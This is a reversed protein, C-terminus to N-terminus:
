NDLSDDKWSRDDITYDNPNPYKDKIAEDFYFEGSNHITATNGWILGYVGATNKMEVHANPAYVMGKFSTSHKFIIDQSSNSFIAFDTPQSLNNLAAGNKSELEGDDADLTGSLYINVPGSTADIELTSGNKLVIDTIYYDGATLTVTEGNSLDIATAGELPSGDGAIGNNNTTIIDIFKNYLESSSDNAGLPDSDVHGVKDITGTIEPTGTDTWIADVPPDSDAGLGLNGDIYTAMKTSIETNSGIDAEGTSADPFTLPDPDPTDRSDYSYIKADSKLDLLGNTFLGFDFISKQKASLYSELTAISSNPGTGISRVWIIAPDYVTPATPEPAYNKFQITYTGVGFSINNFGTPTYFATSNPTISIAGSIAEFSTSSLDQDTNLDNILEAEAKALGAEAIYFAQKSARYNSGIKLDTTTIIVATTGLIAIIALFMLGLPLVMGKENNYIMRIALM